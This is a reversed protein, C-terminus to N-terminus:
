FLSNERQFNIIIFLYVNENRFLYEMDFVAYLDLEELTVAGM